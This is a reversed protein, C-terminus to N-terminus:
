KYGSKNKQSVNEFCKLFHITHKRTILKRYAFYREVFLRVMLYLESVAMKASKYIESSDKIAYVLM